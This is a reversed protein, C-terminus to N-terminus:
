RVSEIPGEARGHIFQQLYPDPALDMEAVPGTWRILGDHLMAV